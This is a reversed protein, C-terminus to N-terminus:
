KIVYFLTKTFKLGHFPIGFKYREGYFCKEASETSVGM